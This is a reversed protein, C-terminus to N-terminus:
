HKSLRLRHLIGISMVAGFVHFVILAYFASSTGGPMPAASPNGAWFLNPIISLILAILAVASYTRLPHATMRNLIWLALVGLSTGIFTFSAISLASLPLFDKPLDFVALLIARVILNVIVAAIVSFIGYKIIEPTTL